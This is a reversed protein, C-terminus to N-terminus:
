KYYGKHLWDSSYISICIEKVTEYVSNDMIIRQTEFSMTIRGKQYTNYDYENKKYGKAKLIQNVKTIRDGTHIGFVSVEPSATNYYTFKYSSALDPYGSFGFSEGDKSYFDVSRYIDDREWQGEEFACDKLPSCFKYPIISNDNLERIEDPLIFFASVFKILIIVLIILSIRTKIKKRRSKKNKKIVKGDKDDM